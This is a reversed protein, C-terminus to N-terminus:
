GAQRQADASALTFVIRTGGSYEKDIWITGGHDTVIRKCIALGIGTGDYEDDDHLRRFIEFVEDAFRPEIGIGNDAVSVQVMGNDIFCADIAIKLGAEKRQFKIANSVLNQIVHGILISECKVM